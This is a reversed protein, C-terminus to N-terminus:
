WQMNPYARQMYQLDALIYGMHETHVGKKGGSKSFPTDPVQLGVEEFVENVREHFAAKVVSMDAGIGAQQMEKELDNPEVLETVYLWLHDLAAQIKEQSIDTGDALRKVWQSSFRVHYKCEKISKLAIAKIQEDKSQSLEELLPLHYADFLFQRLIVHAFDTNPQECLLANKYEHEFRLFAIKDEDTDGKLDAAYQFYNRVQGFLDLSLNSLAIDTELSPGHGCLESIRHGLILSNDGLM